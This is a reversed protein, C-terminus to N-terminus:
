KSKVWFADANEIVYDTLLRRVDMYLEENFFVLYALTRYGCHGDRAIPVVKGPRGTHIEFAACRIFPPEKWSSQLSISFRERMALVGAVTLPNFECYVPRQFAWLM